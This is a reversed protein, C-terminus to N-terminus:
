GDLTREVYKLGQFGGVVLAATTIISGLALTSLGTVGQGITCGLAMAGGIGMLTAGLLNSKMDAVNAFGLIRFRGSRRSAGFAGLLTGIVSAIGFGPWPIATFRQLWDLTDGLPKIFTLSIPPMPQTSFEDFTLGTVVWGCTVLAGVIFGSAIHTRSALFARDRFVYVIAVAAGLSAILLDIAQARGLGSLSLLAGLSQSTLGARRLSIATFQELGDRVPALIGGLTVFGAIAVVLLVVLSRLDGAGFRVLNRTPCGGALVMGFGFILGGFANGLWNLNPSLYMARDLPVIQLWRLSQAALMAVTAALVWARLRRWDGLNHVDSLAGMVCFNTRYVTWGFATGICLGSWALVSAAHATLFDSPTM